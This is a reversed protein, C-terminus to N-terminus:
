QKQQDVLEILRKNKTTSCVYFQSHASHAKLVPKFNSVGARLITNKL